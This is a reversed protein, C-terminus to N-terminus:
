KDATESFPKYSFGSWSMDLHGSFELTNLRVGHVIVSLVNLVMNLGHGFVLLLIGAFIIAGGLMPGAMSNVTESIASGALGVAWLRIYSVIDSFNNVVGLLVSVINKCSDLISAGISGDYSGFIFKLVFGGGIAPIAWSPMPFRDADVVMNLVLFFLGALMVFSGIEAFCRLSKRYRIFGKIHAISLQVLAIGFCFVQLNQSVLNSAEASQAATVNSLPFVTWTLSLNKLWAPLVDVSMGFWTCTVTGWLVTTMGLLLLLFMAPGAKKGSKILGGLAVLVMLLGYGGDGFIMGFFLAFFLLFWGSIDYEKYGPVTGLFDTVPYILSVFKNNKLKTPVEDEESPDTVAFGWNEEAALAKVKDSDEAPVFGTLWALEGGVVSKQGEASEEHDMGSFFTEFEIQKDSVKMAEKLAPINEAASVFEAEIEVIRKKASSIDQEMQVTSREPMQVAFAEAPLGEPREGNDTLALFRVANKDESVYVSKVTDPLNRYKAPPIEYMALNVGKEALYAFDDCNVGGWKALRDLEGSCFAIKNVLSQKEEGLELIHRAFSVTESFNMKGPKTEVKGKKKPLKVESLVMFASELASYEAKESALLEGKGEVAELHVLGLKRLKKLAEKKESNLVVLFVKKMPVIM